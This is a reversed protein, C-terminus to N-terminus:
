FLLMEALCSVSYHCDRSCPAELGFLRSLGWCSYDAYYCDTLTIGQNQTPTHPVRFPFTHTPSFQSSFGSLYPIISYYFPVFTCSSTSCVGLGASYTTRGSSSFTIQFDSSSEKKKKKKEKKRVARQTPQFCLIESQKRQLKEALRSKLMPLYWKLRLIGKLKLQCSLRVLTITNCPYALM